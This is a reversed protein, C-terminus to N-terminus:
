GLGNGDCDVSGISRLSTRRQPLPKLSLKISPLITLIAVIPRSCGNLLSIVSRFSNADFGRSAFLGRSVTLCQGQEIALTSQSLMM